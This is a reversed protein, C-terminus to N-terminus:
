TGCTLPKGRDCGTFRGFFFSVVQFSVLMWLEGIEPCGWLVLHRGMFGLWCCIRALDEDGGTGFDHQRKALM